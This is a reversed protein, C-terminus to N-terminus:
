IGKASHKFCIGVTSNKMHLNLFKIFIFKLDYVSSHLSKSNRPNGFTM